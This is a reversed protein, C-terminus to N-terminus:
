DFVVCNPLEARLRQKGEESFQAGKIFLRGLNPQRMLWDIAEDGVMTSELSLMELHPLIALSRLGEATISNDSLHLAALSAPLRLKKLDDDSLNASDLWLEKLPLDGLYSLDERTTSSETLSLWRVSPPLNCMAGAPVNTSQIFVTDVGDLQQMRRAIEPSIKAKDLRVFDVDVFMEEGVIMHLWKPGPPQPKPNSWSGKSNGYAYNYEVQGGAQEILKVISQERRTERVCAAFWALPVSIAATTLLLGFLSFRLRRPPKKPGSSNLRVNM